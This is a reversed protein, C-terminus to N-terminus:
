PQATQEQRASSLDIISNILEAQSWALPAVSVFEHTVPDIQESLVGTPLMRASVWDIVAKAQDYKNTRLYYQALWLTTIFWPNSPGDPSRRRYADGVYRPMPTVLDDKLGFTAQLTTFARGLVEGEIDFLGFMFAGYFSSTDITDDYMIQRKNSGHKHIFGKYFFKKDKNFLKTQAAGRMDDAVAQWQVAEQQRGMVEALRAAAILAAYTVATTYTTTLLKEEWLDYSAHPLKTTEDIYNALFNAAPRLLSDYFERLTKNDETMQYYQGLLFVVIATEDEQIPPIVRGAAVYPHWSSGIAGDPQYKHMLFGEPQLTRRCFDFFNKVEDFYGLRMLPWLSLASDRPWCYAYTDRSYNRMTTDTSAIVAGHKDIHSKIVLLSKRLPDRLAPSVTDMFTEAPRLWARWSDATKAIREHIGQSRIKRFTNLAEQHDLGAAVLYMIRQSGHAEIPLTFGIVSDVSGHEVANGALIGDEADRFTGEKGEIGYLGVSYQDFAVGDTGQAGFVFARNGKYHLIAPELPLYQATDGGLSAGIRMVQHLFLKVERPRELNNVIHINRLFATYVSDVASQLELTVGLDQNTAVTREVLAGHEFDFTFQWADNDLWSFKDEVWVGIRWRMNGSLAHNELGVYPYYFDHVMGYLNIGVHMSGNSLVIPRTM